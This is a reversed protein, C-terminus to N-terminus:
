LKDISKFVYKPKNQVESLIIVMYKALISLILFVGTFGLSLFVMTTTWGAQIEDLTFYSKVAYIGMGISLIFFIISIFNTLKAGIDSFGILVNSSLNVKDGLSIDNQINITDIPEYNITSTEFGSYHYLAKRYRLVEKSKLVRNLARRSIIRFTETTLNMKRYSLKNLFKYFLKSTIKVKKNPSAAVVDYGTLCKEYVNWIENIDFDIMPSDFELVFDGIAIDVGSLMALEINHKWALNVITIKGNINKSIEKIKEVSKDDSNDNVMVFEYAEFKNKLLKDVQILFKELFEESNHVYTVISIFNKEKTIYKNTM